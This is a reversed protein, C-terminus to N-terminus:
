NKFAPTYEHLGSSNDRYFEVLGKLELSELHSELMFKSLNVCNSTM